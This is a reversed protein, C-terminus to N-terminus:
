FRHSRLWLSSITNHWIKSKLSKTRYPLLSWHYSTQVM